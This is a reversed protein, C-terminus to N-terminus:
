EEERVGIDPEARNEWPDEVGADRLLVGLLAGRTSAKTGALVAAVHYKATRESCGLLQAIRKNSDGWLLRWAVLTEIHSLSAIHAMRAMAARMDLGVPQPPANTAIAEGAAANQGLARRWEITSSVTGALAALLNPFTEPKRVYAHAGCRASELATEDDVAGTVVAARCLPNRDLLEQVLVAATGDPLKYDLVAAHFDISPDVYAARASAITDAAVVEYGSETFTREYTRRLPEYDEVLLIRYRNTSEVPTGRAYCCSRGFLGPWEAM